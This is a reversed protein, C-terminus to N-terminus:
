IVFFCKSLFVKCFFYWTEQNSFKKLVAKGLDIGLRDVTKKALDQHSSGSFVKINPMRRTNSKSNNNDSFPCSKQDSSRKNDDDNDIPCVASLKPQFIIPRISYIGLFFLFITFYLVGCM